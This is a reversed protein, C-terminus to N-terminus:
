ELNNLGLDLHIIKSPQEAMPQIFAEQAIVQPM